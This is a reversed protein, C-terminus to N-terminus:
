GGVRVAGRRGGGKERDAAKELRVVMKRIRDAWKESSVHSSRLRETWIPFALPSFRETEVLIFRMGAIRELTERLRRVELQQDLVERRAQDLLLNEADYERFVDYFLESSAQLQRVTRAAGPYGQFVLGAIRAIDRFQRRALETANLCALLDDLLREPSLLRRWTEEDAEIEKHAVLEFGYDTASVTISAPASAALRWAVLPALGEHVLRGEFPYVFLHHGERSHTREVLLEDAAPIRSWRAQLELLPRVSEMEGDAYVGDRAETLRRRVSASLESSLPMRGGQWRPVAGSGDRVRRVWATMERVRALELVHGAFTFREGPRLRAIFSEEITGLKPGRVFRVAMATDSTITGISLRHLRSITRSTVVYRGNEEVVRAYQPYSRLAPGGRTVFDLAWQWEQRTLNRFAHATRVEDYMADSEFGGGLAATVLHQVLVDLPRDLVARSEIRREEAARRAASFEVLEFAHTPVCLVRSIAGPQHGSRGARQLLRAVGKPSGVQIVQDVPSFDVGLDLSSTCVVCRLHGERLLDEVRRRLDRDLSGHHLAVDGILDPRRRLIGQFWLEAQSRTNTFLLTTRAREIAQVVEALLTTGLHGAWPFREVAPPILTVIEVGKPVEGHIMEVPTTPREGMLVNIAEGMNGLTASLGWTQLGPNWQRLRALCLETQAGRKTGMLEHWEDVVVCRLSSMRERGDPYSLLLSLSEPTTVLASPLRERQRRRQTSTTDGTRLEVTWPLDLATVAANLTEVTDTALARLPTLWLVRLPPARHGLPNEAMWDALPGLWVAYSKGMGTPAHVIGSRGAVYAEWARRQFDFPEWGRSQFWALIATNM